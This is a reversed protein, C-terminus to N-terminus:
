SRALMAADRPLVAYFLRIQSRSNYTTLDPLKPVFSGLNPGPAFGRCHRPIASSLWSTQGLLQPLLRIRTFRLQLMNKSICAPKFVLSYCSKCNTGLFPLNFKSILFVKTFDRHQGNSKKELFIRFPNKSPAHVFRGGLDVM